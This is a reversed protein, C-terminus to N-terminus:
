RNEPETNRKIKFCGGPNMGAPPIISLLAIAVVIGRPYFHSKGSRQHIAGGHNYNNGKSAGFARLNPIPNMEREREAIWTMLPVNQGSRFPHRQTNISRKGESENLIKNRSSDGRLSSAIKSTKGVLIVTSDKRGGAGGVVVVSM